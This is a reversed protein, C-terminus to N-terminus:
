ATQASTSNLWLPPYPNKEHVLYFGQPPTGTAAAPIAPQPTPTPALTAATTTITESMQTIGGSAVGAHVEMERFKERLQEMTPSPTIGPLKWEIPDNWKAPQKAKWQSGQM